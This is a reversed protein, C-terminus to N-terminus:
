IEVFGRADVDSDASPGMPPQVKFYTVKVECETEGIYTEMM